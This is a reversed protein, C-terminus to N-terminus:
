KKGEFFFSPGTSSKSFQYQISIKVLDDNPYINSFSLPANIFIVVSNIAYNNQTSSSNVDDKFLIKSTFCCYSCIIYQAWLRRQFM